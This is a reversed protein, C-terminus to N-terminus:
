SNSETLERAAARAAIWLDIEAEIWGVSRRGLKIPKPFGSERVLGDLTSDPLDDGFKAKLAKRRLVRTQESM